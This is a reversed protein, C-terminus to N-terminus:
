FYIAFGLKATPVLAVNATPNGVTLDAENSGLVSAFNSTTIHMWTPGAQLFLRWRDRNGFEMGLHLNLYDYGFSPLDHHGPINGNFAKGGELTLTPAIPFKIPDFTFGGRLGPALGNYTGSLNLRLWNVKPRVVVGLAAGDPVGLDFQVGVWRHRDETQDASAMSTFFLSGYAISVISIFKKNMKIRFKLNNFLYV